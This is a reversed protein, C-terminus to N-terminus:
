QITISNLHTPPNIIDRDLVEKYLRLFTMTLSHLGFGSDGQRDADTSKRQWLAAQGGIIGLHRQLEFEPQVVVRDIYLHWLTLIGATLTHMGYEDADALGEKDLGLAKDDNQQLWQQCLLVVKHITDEQEKGLSYGKAM